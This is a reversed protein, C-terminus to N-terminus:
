PLGHKITNFVRPMEENGADQLAQILDPLNAPIGPIALQPELALLPLLVFLRKHMRPHPIELHQTQITADGYLLLDLDITRSEKKNADTRIRGLQNEIDLLVRLLDDAELVTNIKAAGNLFYDTNAAMGVPETEYLPSVCIIEIGDQTGLLDLARNITEARRGINSGLAIFATVPELRNM